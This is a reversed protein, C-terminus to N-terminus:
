GLRDEEAELHRLRATLARPIGEEEEFQRVLKAIRQRVNHLEADLKAHRARRARDGADLERQLQAAFRRIIELTLLRDRIGALVRTELEASTM